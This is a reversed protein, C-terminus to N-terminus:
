PRCGPRACALRSRRLHKSAVVHQQASAQMRMMSHTHLRWALGSRAPQAITFVGCAKTLLQLTFAAVEKSLVLGLTPSTPRLRGRGGAHDGRLEHASWTRSTPCGSTETGSTPFAAHMDCAASSRSTLNCASCMSMYKALDQSGSHRMVHCVRGALVTERRADRDSIVESTRFGEAVTADAERTPYWRRKTASSSPLRENRELQGM